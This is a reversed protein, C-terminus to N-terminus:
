SNLRRIIEKRWADTGIALPKPFKKREIVLNDDYRFEEGTWYQFKM